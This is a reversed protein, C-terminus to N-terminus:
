TMTGADESTSLAFSVLLAAGPQWTSTHLLSRAGVTARCSLQLLLARLLCLSCCACRVCCEGLGLLAAPIASLAFMVRWQTAPLAVNVLLAAQPCCCHPPM